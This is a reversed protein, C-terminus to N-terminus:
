VSSCNVFFFILNTKDLHVVHIRYNCGEMDAGYMPQTFTLNRWYNREIAHCTEKNFDLKLSTPDFDIIDLSDSKALAIEEANIEKKSKLSTSRKRKKAIPNTM